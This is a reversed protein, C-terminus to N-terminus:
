PLIAANKLEVTGLLYGDYDGEFIILQNKNLAMSADVPYEFYLDRDGNANGHMDVWVYNIGRIDDAVQAVYGSWRVRKGKIEAEYSKWQTETLRDHQRRVEAYTLPDIPKDVAVPNSKGPLTLLAAVCVFAFVALTAVMLCALTKKDQTSKPASM